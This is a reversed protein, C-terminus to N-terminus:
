LELERLYRFLRRQVVPPREQERERRGDRIMQRLRQRDAGPCQELLAQLAEDGDALLRERWQELRHFRRTDQFHEDDMRQFLNRVLEADENRLLKGLRRYHRRMANHSKIRRSERLAEMMQPGFSFEEWRKPSLAVLREGLKQLALMERKVESKSPGEPEPEFSETEHNM